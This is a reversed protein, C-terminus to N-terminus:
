GGARAPRAADADVGVLELQLVDAQVVQAPDGPDQAVPVVDERLDQGGVGVVDAALQLQGRLLDPLESRHRRVVQAVVVSEVLHHLLLARPVSAGILHHVELALQELHVGVRRRSM